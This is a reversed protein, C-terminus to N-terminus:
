KGHAREIDGFLTSRGTEFSQEVWKIQWYFGKSLFGCIQVYSDTYMLVWSQENSSLTFHKSSSQKLAVWKGVWKPFYTSARIPKQAAWEVHLPYFMYIHTKHQKGEKLWNTIWKLEMNVGLKPLTARGTDNARWMKWLAQQLQLQSFTHSAWLLIRLIEQRDRCTLMWETGSRSVSVWFSQNILLCHLLEMWPLCDAM